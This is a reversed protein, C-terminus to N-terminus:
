RHEALLRRLQPPAYDTEEFADHLTGRRASSGAHSANSADKPVSKGHKTSGGSGGDENRMKESAFCYLVTDAVTDFVVVFAVAVVACVIAAAGSVFVPDSVYHDSSPENFVSFSRCMMLTIYAGGSSIAAVGVLQFIWTAGHLLTVAAVQTTITAFARQASVWFPTSSIAMEIYANKNAFQVTGRFCDVICQVVRAVVRGVDNGQEKARTTLWGITMRVLRFAAILLSGLFLSGIHFFLAICYGRFLGLRPARTKLGNEYPAFYWRQVSQAVAFQSLSTFFEGTWLLMFGYYVLYAYQKTTYEGRYLGGRGSASGCSVLLLFGAFMVTLVTVKNVLEFVPSLLLSRCDFICECSAKVCGIATDISRMSCCAVVALLLGLACCAAGAALNREESGAHPIGDVGGEPSSAVSLLYVGVASPCAVVALVCICVLPGACVELALLYLYGLVVAITASSVLAAWAKPLQSLRESYVYLDSAHIGGAVQEALPGSQPLCFRGAVPRSAYGQTEGSPCESVTMSGQPCRAVCIPHRIDVSGTQGRCHYLYQEPVDVGCLHGRHDYGHFLRNYDGHKRAYELIASLGGLAVMFALLWVCDTCGCAM